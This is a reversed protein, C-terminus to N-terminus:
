QNVCSRLVILMPLRTKVMLSDHIPRATSAIITKRLTKRTKM